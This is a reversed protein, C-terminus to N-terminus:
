CKTAKQHAKSSNKEHEHSLSHSLLPMAPNALVDSGVQMHVSLDPTQWSKEKQIRVSLGKAWQLRTSLISRQAEECRSIHRANRRLLSTANGEPVCRGTICANRHLVCGLGATCEEQGKSPRANSPESCLRAIINMGWCGWRCTLTTILCLHLVTEPGWVRLWM